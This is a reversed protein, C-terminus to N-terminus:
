QYVLGQYAWIVGSRQVQRGWCVKCMSKKASSYSPQPCHAPAVPTPGWTSHYAGGESPVVKCRLLLGHNTSQHDLVFCLPWHLLPPILPQASVSSRDSLEHSEASGSDETGAAISTESADELPLHTTIAASVHPSPSHYCPGHCLLYWLKMHVYQLKMATNHHLSQPSLFTSVKRSVTAKSSPNSPLFLCCM